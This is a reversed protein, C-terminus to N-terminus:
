ENDAAEAQKIAERLERTVRKLEGPRTRDDDQAIANKAIEVMKQKKVKGSALQDLVHRMSAARAEALRARAQARKAPTSGRERRKRRRPPPPPQRRQESM